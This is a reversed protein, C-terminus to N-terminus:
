IDIAMLGRVYTAGYRSTAHLDIHRLDGDSYNVYNKWLVIWIFLQRTELSRM